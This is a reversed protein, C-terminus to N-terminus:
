AQPFLSTKALKDRFLSMATCFEDTRDLCLAKSAEHGACAKKSALFLHHAKDSLGQMGIIAFIGRYSHLHTSYTEWDQKQLCEKITGLNAALDTCFNRLFEYYEETTGGVYALGDDVNLGDISALEEHLSVSRPTDGIQIQEKSLWQILVRNLREASIPKSIYDNMGASLFLEQAGTIANATVAIIPVNKYRGGELMRIQKTAEIGDMGPMMHDMFIIDYQKERAMSLAEAGSGATDAKMAHTVLFGQFVTLNVPIDDVALINVPVGPVSQVLYTVEDDKHVQAPDGPVLPIYVSFVSGQGYESEVEVFGDMLDLLRKTIALGLGTGGIYRNKRTDLQQFTGFLKPIDEKKMGIGSDSIVAILYDKDRTGTKLTFDIYGRQTYKIANNVINTFIQQIRMEDGYVVEPVTKDLHSRFELAKNAAIFHNMSCISNFLSWIDFHGMILEIKGAEVKSFDLISNVLNLLIGSMKRIDSLYGRQVPDLNDTRMLSSMGIITNMPTRIEHSMSALFQTKAKNAEDAAMALQEMACRREESERAAREKEEISIYLFSSGRFTIFGIVIATFIFSFVLATLAQSQLVEVFTVDYAVGLIGLVAQGNVIPVGLSVNTGWESTTTKQSFQRERTTYALEIFGPVADEWVYRFILNKDDPSIYTSILFIYGNDTKETYYLYRLGFTDAVNRFGQCIEWYRNTEAMAEQKLFAINHLEPYQKEILTVVENLTKTYSARIYNNYQLYMMLGMGLSVLVGLSIFLLYSAAKWNKM